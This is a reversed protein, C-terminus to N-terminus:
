FIEGATEWDFFMSETKRKKIKKGTQSCYRGNVILNVTYQSINNAIATQRQSKLMFNDRIVKQVMEPTIPRNAITCMPKTKQNNV